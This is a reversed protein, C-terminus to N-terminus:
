QSWYFEKLVYLFQGKTFFLFYIFFQHYKTLFDVVEKSFITSVEVPKGEESLLSSPIMNDHTM